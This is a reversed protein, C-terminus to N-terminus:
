LASSVASSAKIEKLPNDAPQVVIVPRHAQQRLHAAIDSALRDEIFAVYEAADWCSKHKCGPHSRCTRYQCWLLIEDVSLKGPLSEGMALAYVEAMIATELECNNFGDVLRSQRCHCKGFQRAENCRREGIYDHIAWWTINEMLVRPAVEAINKIRPM